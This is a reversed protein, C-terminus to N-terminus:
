CIVALMICPEPSPGAEDYVCSVKYWLIVTISEDLISIISIKDNWSTGYRSSLVLKM